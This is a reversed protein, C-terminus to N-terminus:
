HHEDADGGVTTNQENIRQGTKCCIATAMERGSLRTALVVPKRGTTRQGVNSTAYDRTVCSPRNDNHDEPSTKLQNDGNM